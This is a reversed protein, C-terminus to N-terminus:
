GGLGIVAKVIRSTLGAGIQLVVTLVLRAYERVLIWQAKHLRKTALAEFYEGRMDAIAQVFVRDYTRRCFVFEAVALVWAGPPDCLKGFRPAPLWGIALLFNLWYKSRTGEERLIAISISKYYSKYDPGLGAIIQLVRQHRKGIRLKEEKIAIELAEIKIRILKRSNEEM